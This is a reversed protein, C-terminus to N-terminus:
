IRDKILGIASDVGRNITIKARDFGRDAQSALERDIGKLDSKLDSFEKDIESKINDAAQAIRNLIDTRTQQEDMYLIIVFCFSGKPLKQKTDFVRHQCRGVRGRRLVMPRLPSLKQTRFSFLHSGERLIGVCFM